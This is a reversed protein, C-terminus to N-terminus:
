SRNKQWRKFPIRATVRAPAADARDAGIRWSRETIHEKSPKQESASTWKQPYLPFEGSTGRRTLDLLPRLVTVSEIEFIPRFQDPDSIALSIQPNLSSFCYIPSSQDRHGRGM